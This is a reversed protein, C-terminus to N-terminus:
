NPFRKAFSIGTYALAGVCLYEEVGDFIGAETHQPVYTWDATRLKAVVITETSHMPPYIGTSGPPLGAETAPDVTDVAM